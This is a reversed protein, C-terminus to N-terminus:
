RELVGTRLTQSFVSLYCIQWRAIAALEDPILGVDWLEWVPDASKSDTLVAEEYRRIFM